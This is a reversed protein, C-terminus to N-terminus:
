SRTPTARQSARGSRSAEDLQRGAKILLGANSQHAMEDVAEEEVMLLFGEPNQSLTEIAKQTM